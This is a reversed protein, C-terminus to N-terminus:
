RGMFFTKLRQMRTRSGYAFVFEQGARALPTGPGFRGLPMGDGTRANRLDRIFWGEPLSRAFERLVADPSDLLAERPPDTKQTWVDHVANEVVAEVPGDHPTASFRLYDAVFTALDPSQYVLAPGDHCLFWVPGLVQQGPRLEVIWYNGAGDGAATLTTGFLEERPCPGISALDIGDFFDLGATEALLERLEAPLAFGIEREIEAIRAPSAPPQLEVQEEDEDVTVLKRGAAGLVVDRLKM